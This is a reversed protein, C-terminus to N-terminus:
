SKKQAENRVKVFEKYPLKDLDPATPAASPKSIPTAPKPARSVPPPAPTVPKEEDVQSKEQALRARILGLEILAEDPHLQSLRKIEEPNQGLHYVIEAGIDLRPIAHSLRNLAPSQYDEMVSVADRVVDDYDPFTKQAASRKEAWTRNVKETESQAEKQKVEFSNQRSQERRNWALMKRMAVEVDDFDGLKPMPDKPDSWPEDGDAIKDTTAEKAPSEGGRERQLIELLAKERREAERWNKTLEDIRKQVGLAKKPEHEGEDPKATEGPQNTESTALQEIASTPSAALEQPTEAIEEPM